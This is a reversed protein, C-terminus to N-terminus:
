ITGLGYTTGAICAHVSFAFGYSVTVNMRILSVCVCPTDGRARAELVVVSKRAKVLNYAVSLGAIGAGVVVVDTSLDRSLKPYAPKLDQQDWVTRRLGPLHQTEDTKDPGM